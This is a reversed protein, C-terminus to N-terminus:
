SRNYVVIIITVSELFSVLMSLFVSASKTKIGHFVFALQITAFTFWMAISIARVDPATLAVLLQPFVALPNTFIVLSMIVAFWKAEVVSELRSYLANMMRDM